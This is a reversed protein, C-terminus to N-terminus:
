NRNGDAIFVFSNGKKREVSRLNVISTVRECGDRIITATNSNATLTLVSVTSEREREREQKMDGAYAMNATRRTEDERQCNVATESHGIGLM